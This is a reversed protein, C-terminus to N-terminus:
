DQKLSLNKRMRFVTSESVINTSDQYTETVEYGSKIYMACAKRNFETSVLEVEDHNESRLYKHASDLLKRGIQHGRHLETVTMDQIWAKKEKSEPEEKISVGVTGILTAKPVSQSIIPSNNEDEESYFKVKEDDKVNDDDLQLDNPLLLAVFFANGDKSSYDNINFLPSARMIKFFHEMRVSLYMLSVGILPIIVCHGYSPISKIVDKAYNPLPFAFFIFATFLLSSFLTDLSSALKWFAPMFTSMAAEHILNPISENIMIQVDVCNEADEVKLRKILVRKRNGAM